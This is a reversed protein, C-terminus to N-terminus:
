DRALFPWYNAHVSLIPAISEATLAANELPKLTDEDLISAGECEHLIAMIGETLATLLYGGELSFLLRGNCHADALDLLVRSLYAFGATSVAMGGLPDNACIDFGASVLILDPSFSSGIPRLFQNFLAAYVLDGAGPYLPLNVTFGSGDGDGVENLAGSGPFYPYQHISSYLVSPDTYFSNQTGNGHHLDWDAVLIRNYGLTKRAYHAALAVNNFLCFGRARDAEAHHGPPRVLAFAVDLNDGALEDLASFLGGVALRAVSWSQASTGTDPDLHFSDRKATSAVTEIYPLTHNWALEEVSAMRPAIHRYRERYEPLALSDYIARLRQPSEPHFPGASHDLYREDMVVGVRRTSKKVAKSEQDNAASSIPTSEMGPTEADYSNIM